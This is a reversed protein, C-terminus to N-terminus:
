LFFVPSCRTSMIISSSYLSPILPPPVWEIHGDSDDISKPHWIGFNAVCIKCSCNTRSCILMHSMCQQHHFSCKLYTPITNFLWWLFRVKFTDILPKGQDDAAMISRYHVNNFDNQPYVWRCHLYKQNKGYHQPINIISQDLSCIILGM